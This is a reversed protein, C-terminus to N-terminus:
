KKGVRSKKSRDLPATAPRDPNDIHGVYIPEIDEAGGHERHAKRYLAQAFLEALIRAFNAHIAIQGRGPAAGFPAPFCAGDDATIRDLRANRRRGDNGLLMAVSHHALKRLSMRLKPPLTVCPVTRRLMDGCQPVM